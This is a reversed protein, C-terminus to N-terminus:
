ILTWGVFILNVKLTGQITKHSVEPFLLYCLPCYLQLVNLKALDWLIECFCITDGLNLHFGDLNIFLVDVTGVTVVVCGQNEFVAAMQGNRSQLLHQWTVCKAETISLRGLEWQQLHCWLVSIVIREEAHTWDQGNIILFFPTLNLKPQRNVHPHWISSQNEHRVM